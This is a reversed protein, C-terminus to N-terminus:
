LILIRRTTTDSTERLKRMEYLLEKKQLRMEEEWEEYTDRRNEEYEAQIIDYEEPSILRVKSKSPPKWYQDHKPGSNQLFMGSSIGSFGLGGKYADASTLYYGGIEEISVERGKPFPKRTQRESGKYDQLSLYISFLKKKAKEKKKKTVNTLKNVTNIYGLCDNMYIDIPIGHEGQTKNIEAGIQTLLNEAKKIIKNIRDM